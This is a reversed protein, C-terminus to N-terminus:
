TATAAAAGPCDLRVFSERQRAAKSSRGLTNSDQYRAALSLPPQDQSPRCRGGRGGEREAAAAEGGGSGLLWSTVARQFQPGM